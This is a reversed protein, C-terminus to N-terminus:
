KVVVAENTERFPPEQLALALTRHRSGLRALAENAKASQKKTAVAGDTAVAKLLSWRREGPPVSADSAAARKVVASEVTAGPRACKAFQLSEDGRATSVWLRARAPM